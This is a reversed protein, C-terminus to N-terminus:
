RRCRRHTEHRDDAGKVVRGRMPRAAAPRRITRRGSCRWFPCPVPKGDPHGCPSRDELAGEIEPIGSGGAEPAYKRVLFYGFMALVASCLFAVTLLLPYNDATHVLAGMRQNQLWAVGKDFAVAALGVLTGVVAAMFLIALPTKDRELLQRILQRRRLRAAQPTELSPTDTKM